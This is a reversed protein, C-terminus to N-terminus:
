ALPIGSDNSAPLSRDCPVKGLGILSRAGELYTIIAETSVRLATPAPPNITILIGVLM